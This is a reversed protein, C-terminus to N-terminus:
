EVTFREEGKESHDILTGYAFGYRTTADAPEITYVIRSANLSYFGFHQVVIAVTAGAEIPSRKPSLEIWDFDFMKWNRIAEVADHFKARGYGLRIRNHDVNYGSPATSNSPGVEVYSFDSGGQRELFEQVAGKDPKTLVLM